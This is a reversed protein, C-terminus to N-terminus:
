NTNETAHTSVDAMTHSRFHEPGTSSKINLSQTHTHTHAHTHTHTHASSSHESLSHIGSHMGSPANSTNPKHYKANTSGEILEM